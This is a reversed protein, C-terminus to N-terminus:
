WENFRFTRWPRVKVFHAMISLKHLSPQRNFLVVDDNMLHRDIVDGIQLDKAIKERNGYKLFRKIGTSAATVYTAGPHIDPGNLVNQRLRNINYPTVREPYSLIKAVREPVAVQDIRM